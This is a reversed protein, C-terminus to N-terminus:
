RLLPVAGDSAQCGSAFDAAFMGDVLSVRGRSCTDGGKVKLSEPRTFIRTQITVAPHVALGPNNVYGDIGGHVQEQLAAQREM